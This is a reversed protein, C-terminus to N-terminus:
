DDEGTYDLRECRDIKNNLYKATRWVIFGILVVPVWVIASAIVFAITLTIMIGSWILAVALRIRYACMTKPPKFPYPKPSNRGPWAADPATEFEKLFRYHWSKTSIKM